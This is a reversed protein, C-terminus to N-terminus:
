FDLNMNQNQKARTVILLREKVNYRQRLAHCEIGHPAKIITGQIRNLGKPARAQLHWRWFLRRSEHRM